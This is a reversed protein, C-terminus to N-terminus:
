EEYHLILVLQEGWGRVHRGLTKKDQLKGTMYMSVYYYQVVLAEMM